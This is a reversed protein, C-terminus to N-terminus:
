CASIIIPWISAQTWIYSNYLTSKQSSIDKMLLFYKFKSLATLCAICLFVIQWLRLEGVVNRELWEPEESNKIVDM